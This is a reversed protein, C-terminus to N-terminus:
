AGDNRNRGAEVHGPVPVNGDLEIAGLGAHDHGIRVMEAAGDLEGLGPLLPGVLGDSVGVAVAVISADSHGVHRMGDAGITRVACRAFQGKM